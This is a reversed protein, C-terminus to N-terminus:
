TAVKTVWKDYFDEKTILACRSRQIPVHNPICVQDRRFSVYSSIQYKTIQTTAKVCLIHCVQLVM